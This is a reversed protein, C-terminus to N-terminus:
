DQVDFDDTATAQKRGPRALSKDVVGYKVVRHLASAICHRHYFVHIYLFVLSPVVSLPFVSTTTAIGSRTGSQRARIGRLIGHSRFEKYVYV